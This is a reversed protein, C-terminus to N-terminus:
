AIPESLRLYLTCEKRGCMTQSLVLMPLAGGGHVSGPLQRSETAIALDLYRALARLLCVTAVASAVDSPESLEVGRCAWALCSRARWFFFLRSLLLFFFQSVAFAV